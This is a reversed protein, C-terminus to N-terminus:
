APPTSRMAPGHRAARRARAQSLRGDGKVARGDPRLQAFRDLAALQQAQAHAIVREWGGAAELTEDASLQEVPRATLWDVLVGGLDVDSYRLGTAPTIEM